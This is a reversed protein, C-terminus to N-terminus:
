LLLHRMGVAFGLVAGLSVCWPGTGWHNDLWHGGVAPLVMELSVSSIRSVWVMGQAMSSGAGTGSGLPRRKRTDM